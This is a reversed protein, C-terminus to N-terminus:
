FRKNFRIGITFDPATNVLIAAGPVLDHDESFYLDLRESVSLKRQYGFTLMRHAGNAISTTSVPAAESQWQVIWSDRSTYLYTLALSEQDVLTRARRLVTPRGQVVVGASADLQFKRGLMTRYELNVGADFAGSGLLDSANGTPIKVGVSAIMRPSIRKRAYVSVDGVGSAAGFDGVGPVRVFTRGFPLNDRVREQPGLITQHWWHIIPDLFGGNRSLLPLEVSLELDESLGRSYLFALRQTEHDEELVSPLNVNRPDRRVDNIVQISTELSEQGKSLFDSRPSFRLFPLSLVRGNRTTIPGQSVRASNGSPWNGQSPVLLAAVISCAFFPLPM